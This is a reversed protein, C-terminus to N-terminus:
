KGRTELADNSFIMTRTIVLLDEEAAMQETFRGYPAARRIINMAAADLVKNGSSKDVTLESIQGDKDLVVTMQVSGYNQGKAVDPYNLTGWREVRTRFNDVYLAASYDKASTGFFHKKPRKYEAQIRAEVIASQDMTARTSDTPDNALNQASDTPKRKQDNPETFSPAQRLSSLLRRQEADLQELRRQADVLSDGQQEIGVNPLPTTARGKDRDGGGELANQALVDAKNPARSSKTNVLVVELGPDVAKVNLLEPAVFNVFLLAVHALVSVGIAIALVKNARVWAAPSFRGSPRPAGPVPNRPAPTRPGPSGPGNMVAAM